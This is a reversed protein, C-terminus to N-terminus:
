TLVNGFPQADLSGFGTGAHGSEDATKQFRAHTAPFVLHGAKLKEQAAGSKGANGGIQGLPFINIVPLSKTSM